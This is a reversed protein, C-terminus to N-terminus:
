PTLTGTPVWPTCDRCTPPSFPPRVVTITAPIAAPIGDASARVYTAGPGVGTVKGSSVTAISTNDSTWVIARNVTQGYFDRVTASLQTTAGTNVQVQTPSVTVTYVEGMYPTVNVPVARTASESVYGWSDYEVVKCTLTAPNAKYTGEVGRLRAFGNVSWDHIEPTITAKRTDSITWVVGGRYLEVGRSSYAKCELLPSDGVAITTSGFIEVCALKDFIENYAVSSNKYCPETGSSTSSGSYTPSPSTPTSDDVPAIIRAPGRVSHPSVPVLPQDGCATFLAASIAASLVMVSRRM